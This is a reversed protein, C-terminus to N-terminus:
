GFDPLNEALALEKRSITQPYACITKLWFCCNLRASESDVLTVPRADFGVRVTELPRM